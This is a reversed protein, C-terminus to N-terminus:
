DIWRHRGRMVIVPLRGLRGSRLMTEASRGPTRYGLRQFAKDIRFGREVDKCAVTGFGGFPPALVRRVEQLALPVEDEL